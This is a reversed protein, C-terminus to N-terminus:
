ESECIDEIKYDADHESYDHSGSEDMAIRRAEKLNKATVEYSCHGYGIRTMNVTYTKM